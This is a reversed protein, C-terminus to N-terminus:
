PAAPDLEGAVVAAAVESLRRNHSRAHSRLATFAQDPGVRLREALIGKAQEVLVRSDLATQLQHTLEDRGALARERLISITAVAALTETLHADSAPLAGTGCSFLNLAGVTQERLRLPQAHVARYGNHRAHRVLEPWRDADLDLDPSEVTRATRFAEPCPGDDTQLQFLELLRATENSAAAVQLRGADDALLVGAADVGLLEVCGQALHTLLDLVDYDTALTDALAVFMEALRRQDPEM